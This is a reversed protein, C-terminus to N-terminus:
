VPLPYQREMVADKPLRFRRSTTGRSAKTRSTAQESLLSNLETELQALLKKGKVALQVRNLKPNGKDRTVKVLHQKRLPKMLKTVTYDPDGTAKSIEKQTAGGPRSAALLLALGRTYDPFCGECRARARHNLELYTELATM